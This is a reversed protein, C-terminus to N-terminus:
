PIRDARFYASRYGYFRGLFRQNETGTQSQLIGRAIKGAAVKTGGLDIGITSHSGATGM